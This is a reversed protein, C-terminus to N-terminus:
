NKIGIQAMDWKIVAPNLRESLTRESGSVRKLM